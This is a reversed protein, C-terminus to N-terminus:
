GKKVVAASARRTKLQNDEASRCASVAIRGIRWFVTFPPKAPSDVIPLPAICDKSPPCPRATVNQLPRGWRRLPSAREWQGLSYRRKGSATLGRGSAMGGERDSAMDRVSATNRRDSAMSRWQRLGDRWQRPGYEQRRPGHEQRRPGHEQRGLGHGRRRGFAPGRQETALHKLFYPPRTSFSM